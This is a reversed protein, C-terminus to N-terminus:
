GYKYITDSSKIQDAGAGQFLHWELTHQNLMRYQTMAHSGTNLMRDQTM